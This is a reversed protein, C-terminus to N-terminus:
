VTLRIRRRKRQASRERKRETLEESRQVEAAVESEEETHVGETGIGTMGKEIGKGQVTGKGNEIGKEREDIMESEVVSETGIGETGITLREGRLVARDAVDARGRRKKATKTRRSGM